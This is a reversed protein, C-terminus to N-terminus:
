REGGPSRNLKRMEERLLKEFAERLASDTRFREFYKQQVVQKQAATLAFRSLVTPDDEGYASLAARMAAYEPLPQDARALQVLERMEEPSPLGVTEGAEDAPAGSPPGAIERIREPTTTGSFPIVPLPNPVPPQTLDPDFAQQVPSIPPSLSVSLRPGPAVEPARLYSPVARMPDQPPPASRRKAPPEISARLWRRLADQDGTTPALFARGSEWREDRIGAPLPLAPSEQRYTWVGVLSDPTPAGLAGAHLCLSRTLARFVERGTAEDGPPLELSLTLWGSSGARFLGADGPGIRVPVALGGRVRERVGPMRGDDEVPRWSGACFYEAREGYRQAVEVGLGDLAALPEPGAKGHGVLRM